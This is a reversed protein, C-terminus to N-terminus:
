GLAGLVGLLDIGFKGTGGLFQKDEAKTVRERVATIM